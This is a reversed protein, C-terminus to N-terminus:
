EFSNKVVTFVFVEQYYKSIMFIWNFLSSRGQFNQSTVIEGYYSVCTRFSIAM